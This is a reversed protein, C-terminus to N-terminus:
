KYQEQQEKPGLWVDIFCNNSCLDSEANTQAFKSNVSTSISFSLHILFLYFQQPFALLLRAFKWFIFVSWNSSDYSCKKM